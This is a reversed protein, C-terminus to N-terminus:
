VINKIVINFDSTENMKITFKKVSIKNQYVHEMHHCLQSSTVEDTIIVQIIVQYVTNSMLCPVLLTM